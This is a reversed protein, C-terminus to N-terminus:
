IRAKAVGAARVGFCSDIRIRSKRLNSEFLLSLAQQAFKGRLLLSLTEQGSVERRLCFSPVAVPRAYPGSFYLGILDEVHTVRKSLGDVCLGM